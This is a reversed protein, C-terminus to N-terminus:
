IEILEDESFDRKALSGIVNFWNMPSLGTGPRKTGIKDETIIEGKKIHRTAVISKRAIPINKTESATPKKIGDGLSKEIKRIAEIMATLEGPELSAMHDPGEMHKDLTFHKEIITAGLATAAIPIVIGDTHDSYGIPLKFQEQMTLIANLNVEDFPAPYETTCHLLTIDNAGYKRLVSVAESVEAVTSMGTSLIIPQHMKAIQILYPLNTIEGSPIKWFPIGLEKLFQISENDFATSSFVIGITDCFQKLEIFDNFSLELKQVMELQSEEIPHNSKQYNAKEAFKSVVHTSIFTQYKVADAGARKAVVALQKALDLNGNHNVGAEAIVFVQNRNM